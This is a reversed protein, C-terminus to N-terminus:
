AREGMYFGRNCGAAKIPVGQKRLRVITVSISNRMSLPGGDERDGYVQEAIEDLSFVRGRQSALTTCIAMRINRPHLRELGRLFSKVSVIHLECTQTGPM